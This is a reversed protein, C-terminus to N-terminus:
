KSHSKCARSSGTDSHVIAVVDSCPRLLCCWGGRTSSQVPEQWFRGCPNRWEAATFGRGERYLSHEEFLGFITPHLWVKGEYAENAPSQHHLGLDACPQKLPGFPEGLELRDSNPLHPVLQLAVLHHWEGQGAVESHHTLQNMTVRGELNKNTWISQSERWRIKQLPEMTSFLRVPWRPKSESVSRLTSRALISFKKIFGLVTDRFRITQLPKTLTHYTHHYPFRKETRVSQRRRTSGMKRRSIRTPRLSLPRHDPDPDEENQSQEWHHWHGTLGVLFLKLHVNKKIDFYVTRDGIVVLLTSLGPSRQDLRDRCGPGRDWRCGGSWRWWCEGPLIYWTPGQSWIKSGTRLGARKRTLPSEAGLHELM